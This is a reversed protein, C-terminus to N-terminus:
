ADGAAQSTERAGKTVRLGIAAYAMHVRFLSRLLNTQKDDHAGSTVLYVGTVRPEGLIENAQKVFKYASEFGLYMIYNSISDVILLVPTGETSAVTKDLLDLIVAVDNEPVLLENPVDSPRPYAVQSTTLYFRVGPIGELGNYVPSGKSTFVYVLGRSATKAKALEALATEYNTTPDVELLVPVSGGLVAGRGAVAPAAVSPVGAVPEFFTSLLSTRRFISATVGFLVAAIAYGVAIFDYGVTVLYGNFVLIEAGIGVWCFPLAVFGRRVGPDKVQVTARVLLLTPYALFFLLTVASIALFTDNFRPSAAVGGGISSLQVVTYPRYYTLYGEAGAVFVVFAGLIFGHPWRVFVSRLRALVGRGGPRVYVSYAIGTLLVVDWFVLNPALVSYLDIYTPSSTVNRIADLLIIFEFFVHVLILLSKLYPYQSPKQRSAFYLSAATIVFALADISLNIVSPGTAAL